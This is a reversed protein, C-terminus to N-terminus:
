HGNILPTVATVKNHHYFRVPTEEEEEEEKELSSTSIITQGTRRTWRYTDCGTYENIMLMVTMLQYVRVRLHDGMNECPGTPGAPAGPKGPDGPALTLTFWM